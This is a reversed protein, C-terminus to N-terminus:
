PTRRRPAAKAGCRGFTAISVLITTLLAAFFSPIIEHILGKLGPNLGWIFTVSAGALMGALAGWFTCRRWYLGLIIPPGFSCGLGTWALLVLFNVYQNGFIGIVLAAACLLVVAGRNLFVMRGEAIEAGGRIIRQYIDRIVASAAVLLQSDATSMIAAFVAALVLGFLFPPLLGALTPFITEEDGGPLAERTKYIARGVTGIGVAGIGMVINWLLAIWGARKLKSSDEISMFRVLIHPNGPSGFGIGLWGILLGASLAFPDIMSPHLAALVEQLGGAKQLALLPLGLLAFIMLFAQLVDTLSVALYGGVATYLLIVLGTLAAGIWEEIGFAASLSKGGARIQAGVYTVLFVTIILAATGRLLHRRDGFRSALYDPITIDGAAATDKRLRHALTQFLILESITYGLFMWIASAGRIFAVGSVALLLWASRGSVVASLAVVIMKMRRGGLLFNAQGASSFRISLLGIAIVVAFYLGFAALAWPNQAINPLAPTEM